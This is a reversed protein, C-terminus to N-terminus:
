NAKSSTLARLASAMCILFLMVSAEFLNRQPLGVAMFMRTGLGFHALAGFLAFLWGVYYTVRSVLQLRSVSDMSNYGGLEFTLLGPLRHLKPCKEAPV